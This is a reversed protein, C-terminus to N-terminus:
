RLLAIRLQNFPVVYGAAGAVVYTAKNVVAGVLSAPVPPVSTDPPDYALAAIVDDLPHDEILPPPVDASCILLAPTIVNAVGLALQPVTTATPKYSATVAPFMNYKAVMVDWTILVPTTALKAPPANTM